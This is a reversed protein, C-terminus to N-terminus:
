QKTNNSDVLALRMVQEIITVMSPYPHLHYMDNERGESM